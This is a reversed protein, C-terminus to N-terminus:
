SANRINQKRTNHMQSQDSCSHNVKINQNIETDNLNNLKPPNINKNSLCLSEKMNRAPKPQDMLKNLPHNSSAAKQKLKSSHLNCHDKLPLVKTEQHFHNMNTDATCGTAVRLATNQVTQLKKM